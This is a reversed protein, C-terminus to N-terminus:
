AHGRGADRAELRSLLAEGRAVIAEERDLLVTARQQQADARAQQRDAVDQQGQQRRLTRGYQWISLVSLAVVVVAVPVLLVIDPM